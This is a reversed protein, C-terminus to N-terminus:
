SKSDRSFFVRQRTRLAPQELPYPCFVERCANWPRTGFPCLPLLTAGNPVFASEQSVRERGNVPRPAQREWEGLEAAYM